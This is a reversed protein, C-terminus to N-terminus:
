MYIDSTQVRLRLGEEALYADADRLFKIWMDVTECRVLDKTMEYYVDQAVPM